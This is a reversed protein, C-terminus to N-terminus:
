LVQLNDITNKGGRSRPLIHDVHLTTQDKPAGCLACRGGSRMLAQYRLAPPVPDTEIM